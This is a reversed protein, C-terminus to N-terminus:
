NCQTEGVGQLLFFSWYPNSETTGHAVSFDSMRTMRLAQLSARPAELHGQVEGRSRKRILVWRRLTLGIETTRIRFAMETCIVSSDTLNLARPTLALYHLQWSRDEEGPCKTWIMNSHAHSTMLAKYDNLHSHTCPFSGGSFLEGGGGEGAPSELGFWLSLMLCAICAICKCICLTCRQLHTFYTENDSRCCDPILDVDSFTFRGTPSTCYDGPEYCLVIV